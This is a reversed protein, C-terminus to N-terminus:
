SQEADDPARDCGQSHSGRPAAHGRSWPAFLTIITVLDPPVWTYLYRRQILYRIRLKEGLDANAVELETGAETALALTIITVLDLPLWTCLYRRQFLYLIRLMESLDAEAVEPDTGAETESESETGLEKQTVLDEPTELDEDWVFSLVYVEEPTKLDEGM